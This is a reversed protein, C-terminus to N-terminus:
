GRGRQVGEVERMFDAAKRAVQEWAAVFAATLVGARRNLRAERAQILRGYDVIHPGNCKWPTLCNPCMDDDM